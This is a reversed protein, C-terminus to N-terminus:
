MERYDIEMLEGDNLADHVYGDCMNKGGKVIWWDGSNCGVLELNNEDAFKLIARCLGFWNSNFRKGGILGGKKVLPYYKKLFNYVVDYEGHADMWVFDIEEIIDETADELKKRIFKVTDKYKRVKNVAISYGYSFDMEVGNEIYKGYHDVLYLKKMDLHKLISLANIGYKVGLEVGVLGNKNQEMLYNTMANKRSSPFLKLYLEYLM